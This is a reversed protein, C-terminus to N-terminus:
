VPELQAAIFPFEQRCFIEIQKRLVDDGETHTGLSLYYNAGEHIGFILWEGTFAKQKQLREWTGRVADDAIAAVDSAEFYSEEGASAAEDVMKRLIPIGHERIGRRVNTAMSAVGDPLYHKHWLGRLAPHREFRTPPKLMSDPGTGELSTIEHIVKAPNLTGSTAGAYLQLLLLASVRGPAARELGTMAAFRALDPNMDTGDDRTLKWRALINSPTEIQM